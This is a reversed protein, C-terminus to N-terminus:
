NKIIRQSIVEKGDSFNLFYIGSPFDKINITLTNIGQDLNKNESVIVNGLLNIVNINLDINEKLEMQINVLDEVPNPFVKISAGNLIDEIGTVFTENVSFDITVSPEDSGITVMKVGPDKGLIEVVVKYTGWAIDPFQFAGNVDTLTHTVPEDNETLLLVNVNPVPDGLGRTEVQGSATFNAGESVLGGIFGPGGPNNGTIMYIAPPFLSPPMPLTITEADSWYLVSEHYTPLFNEYHTSGPLLAAKLLYNGDPHNNFNFPIVGFNNPTGTVDISDVATLTGASADHQILYVRASVTGSIQIISDLFINGVIDDMVIYEWGNSSTCGDAATVTVSYSNNNTATITTVLEGTSWEYTFPAVGYGNATLQNGSASIQVGCYYSDASTVCGLADTVTVSFYQNAIADIAQTTEGTNWLYTYPEFGSYAYATYTTTGTTAATDFDIYSNIQCDLYYLNTDVCGTADTVTIEYSGTSSVPISSNTDGTGWLYTFPAVGSSNAVLHYGNTDDLSIIVQCTNTGNGVVGCATAECGNADTVVVCLSDVGPSNSCATSGTSGDSWSYTFPAAGISTAQLCSGNQITALDVECTNLTVTVCNNATCGNNDVITVCYDGAGNQPTINQTSQGTSWSYTFPPAGQGIAELLPLPAGLMNNIFINANCSSVQGTCETAICGNADTITVCYQTFGGNNCTTQLDSGNNWLYTFPATGVPNAQFCAGGQITSDITVSCTFNSVDYTICDAANCGESDTITCCYTGTSAPTIASTNEGTDWFYSLNGTGNAAAQLFHGTTPNGAVYIFVSCDPPITLCSNAICGTADTITVCVDTGPQGSICATNQTSGDNWVYTFPATGDPMAQYCDTGITDLWVSCITDPGFSYSTDAKLLLFSFLFFLTFTIRKM